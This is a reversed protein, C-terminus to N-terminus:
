TAVLRQETVFQQVEVRGVHAVHAVQVESAACILQTHVDGRMVSVDGAQM